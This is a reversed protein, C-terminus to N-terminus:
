KLFYFLFYYKKNGVIKKDSFFFSNILFFSSLFLLIVSLNEFFSDENSLYKVITNGLPRYITLWYCISLFIFPFKSASSHDFISKKKNFIDFIM